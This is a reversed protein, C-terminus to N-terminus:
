TRVDGAEKEKAAKLVSRKERKRQTGKAEDSQPYRVPAKDIPIGGKSKKKKKLPAEENM